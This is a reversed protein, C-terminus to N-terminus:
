ETVGGAEASSGDQESFAGADDALASSADSGAESLGDDAAETEQIMYMKGTEPDQYVMGLETYRDGGSELESSLEELDDIEAMEDEREVEVANPLDVNWAIVLAVMLGCLMVLMCDSLNTLSSNPDVDEASDGFPNPGFGSSLMQGRRTRM